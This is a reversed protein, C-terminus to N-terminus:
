DTLCRARKMGFTPIAGGPRYFLLRRPERSRSYPESIRHVIVFLLTKSPDRDPSRLIRAKINNAVVVWNIAM